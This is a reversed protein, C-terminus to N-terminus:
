KSKAPASFRPDCAEPDANQRKVVCRLILKFVRNQLLRPLNQYLLACRQHRNGERLAPQIIQRHQFM